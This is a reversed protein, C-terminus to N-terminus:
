VRARIWEANVTENDDVDVIEWPPLSEVECDNRTAVTCLFFHTLYQRGSRAAELEPPGGQQFHRTSQWFAGIQFGGM